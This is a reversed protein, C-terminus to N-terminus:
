QLPAFFNWTPVEPKSELQPGNVGTTFTTPKMAREHAEDPPNRKPIIQERLEEISPPATIKSKADLRIAGRHVSWVSRYVASPSKEEHGDHKPRNSDM